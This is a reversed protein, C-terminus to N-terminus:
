IKEEGWLFFHVGEDAHDVYRVADLCLHVLNYNKSLYFHIKKEEGGAVSFRFKM